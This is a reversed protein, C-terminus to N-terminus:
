YRLPTWHILNYSKSKTFWKFFDDVSDFGDRLAFTSLEDMDLRKLDVIVRRQEPYIRVVQTAHCVGDRFKTYNKTRVGTAFQISRGVFWRGHPDERLTHIKIGSQIKPVFIPNFGLIM